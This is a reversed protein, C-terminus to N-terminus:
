SSTSDSLIQLVNMDLSLKNSALAKEYYTLHEGNYIASKGTIQMTVWGSANLSSTVLNQDLIGTLPLTNNGPRLTMNNITSNGVVGKQTALELTVNGMAITLVSPNPIYAFGSLNPQGPKALLNVKAGTVNFGKLGNLATYTSSSNYNVTVVPLAGEHLRTRGVLATTVNEQSLVATAYATVQDLSVFSANTPALTVNSRPHLAHIGPVPVVIMPSEAYVGDTVLFLSANFPDLHPTYMSPSHLIANQALVISNSTPETFNIETFELSSDNVGRQAIKPMAVYVLCLAIILVSICFFILHAWWFRACHRKIKGGLTPKQYAPSAGVELQEAELKKDSAASGNRPINDSM